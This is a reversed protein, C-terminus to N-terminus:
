PLRRKNEDRKTKFKAVTEPDHALAVIQKLKPIDTTEIQAKNMQQLHANVAALQNDVNGGPEVSTRHWQSALEVDDELVLLGFRIQVHGTRTVEIQDIITKKEIM